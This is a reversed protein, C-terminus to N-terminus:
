HMTGAIQFIPLYIALVVILVFGGLVIILLPEIISTLASVAVRVEENYFKSLRMLMKPVTGSEEGVQIMKVMMKPFLSSKKLESSVNSGKEIGAITESVFDEVLINGSARSSISLSQIVSVGGEILTALSRCFRSLVVKHFLNGFIPFSIKLRAYSHKGRDTRGYAIFGAILAGLFALEYVINRIIFSSIGLVILTLPPLQAGFSCFIAQFKPLLFFIVFSVCLVFFGAIFIPYTVAGKVQRILAVQDEVYSALDEMITPLNGSEEGTSAMNVVLPSFIRPYKKLAESFSSGNKIRHAVDGLVQGLSRNESQDAIDEITSVIPVGAELMTAIQRYCVALQGLKVKGHTPPSEQGGKEGGAKAEISVVTLGKGRLTNVLEHSSAAELTGEMKKGSGDKASYKFVPM